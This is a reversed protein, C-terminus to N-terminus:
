SCRIAGSLQNPPTSRRPMARAPLGSAPNTTAAVQGLVGRLDRVRSEVASACPSAGSLSFVTLFEHPLTGDHRVLITHVPLKSGYLVSRWRPEDAADNDCVIAEGGSCRITPASPSAARFVGDALLPPEALHWRLSLAHTGAGALRDAVLILGHGVSVARFHRIGKAGYGDHSGILTAIGSEAVEGYDLGCTYPASWLFPGSQRAQDDDDVTVTNHAATGRFFRRSAGDQAYSYTGADVLVPRGDIRLLLSLADAHGHAFNPAMGLPAHNFVLELGEAPLRLISYGDATWWSPRGPPAAEAVARVEWASVFHASAATGNDNDGIQPLAARAVGFAALFSKGADWLAALERSDHGVHRACAIAIELFDVVQAHYHLAHEAPGGSPLIERRAAQLLVEWARQRWEAADEHEPFLVAAMFLGTCEAVTHNGLSSFLSLRRRVFAAHELVLAAVGNWFDADDEIKARVMDAAIAVSVIRQACEMASAYNVGVSVPNHRIWCRLQRKLLSVAATAHDPRREALLALGILQQLRNPEWVIRVDGVPNGPRYDIADSHKVPWLRGTDPARHWADAGPQWIWSFGLAHHRGALLAAIEADTPAFNWAFDPLRRPGSGCFGYDAADARHRGGSAGTVTWRVRDVVGAVGIAARHRLEGREMTRFRQAYWHLKRASM